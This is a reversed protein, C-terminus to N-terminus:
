LALWNCSATRTSPTSADNCCITGAAGVWGVCGVRMDALVAAGGRRAELKRSSMSAPRRETRSSASRLTTTTLASANPSTAPGKL